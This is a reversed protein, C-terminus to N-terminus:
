NKLAEAILREHEEVLQEKVLKDLYPKLQCKGPEAVLVNMAAALDDNGIQSYNFTNQVVMVPCCFEGDDDCLVCECCQDDLVAGESGNAFYAMM